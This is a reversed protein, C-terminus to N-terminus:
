VDGHVLREGKNGEEHGHEIRSSFHGVCMVDANRIEHHIKLNNKFQIKFQKCSQTSPECGSANMTM